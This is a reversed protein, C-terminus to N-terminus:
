LYFGFIDPSNIFSKSHARAHTAAWHQKEIPQSELQVMTPGFDYRAAAGSERIRVPPQRAFICAPRIKTGDDVGGKWNAFSVAQLGVVRKWKLCWLVGSRYEPDGPGLKAPALRGNTADIEAFAGSCADPGAGATSPAGDRHVPQVGLWM